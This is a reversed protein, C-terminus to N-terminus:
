SQRQRTRRQLKRLPIPSPNGYTLKMSRPRVAAKWNWRQETGIRCRHISREKRTAVWAGNSLYKRDPRIAFRIWSQAPRNPWASRIVGEALVSLGAILLVTGLLTAKAIANARPRFVLPLFGSCAAIQACCCLLVIFSSPSSNPNGEASAKLQRLNPDAYFLSHVDCARVM